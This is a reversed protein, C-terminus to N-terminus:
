PYGAPLLCCLDLVQGVWCASAPYNDNCFWMEILFEMSPLLKNSLLGVCLRLTLCPVVISLYLTDCMCYVVCVMWGSVRLRSLSHVVVSSTTCILAYQTAVSTLLVVYFQNSTYVNNCYHCLIVITLWHPIEPCFVVFLINLQIHVLRPAGPGRMRSSLTCYSVCIHPIRVANPVEIHCYPCQPAPLMFIM